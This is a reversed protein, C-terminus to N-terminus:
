ERPPDGTGAPSSSWTAPGPSTVPASGACWAIPRSSAALGLLLQRLLETFGPRRAPFGVVPPASRPGPYLAIVFSPCVILSDQQRLRYESHTLASGISPPDPPFGTFMDSM